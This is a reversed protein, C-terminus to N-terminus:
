RGMYSFHMYDKPNDWANGGWTFGYKRFIRVVEGDPTISYPDQYPKWYSGITSGDKYICYNENPNIDIATGWNHESLRGSSMPARWSYGGVEKICYQEEGNFIEEFVSWVRDKIAQHVQIDATSKYKQGYAGLKWVKVTVTTLLAEAEAQTTIEGMSYIEARQEELHILGDDPPPTLSPLASDTPVPTSAASATPAAASPTAEPLPIHLIEECLRVAMAVAQEHTTHSLPALQKTDTGTIIGEAIMASMAEVAWDAVDASDTYCNFQAPTLSNLGGHFKLALQHLMRCFEQRKVPNDPAFLMGQETEGVGSVLGLEYATDVFSDTTDSFYHQKPATPHFKQAYLQVLITCCDARTICSNPVDPQPINLAAAKKYYPASWHEAGMSTLLPLQFSWVILLLSIILLKHRIIRYM